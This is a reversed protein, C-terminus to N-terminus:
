GSSNQIELPSPYSKPPPTAGANAAEAFVPMFCLCPHTPCNAASYTEPLGKMSVIPTDFGTVLRAVAAPSVELVAFVGLVRFVIRAGKYQDLVVELCNELIYLWAIFTPISIRVAYVRQKHAGAYLHFGVELCNQLFVSKCLCRPSEIDIIVPPYVNRM